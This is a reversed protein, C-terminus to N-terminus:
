LLIFVVDLFYPAITSPCPTPYGFSSVIPLSISSLHILPSRTRSFLHVLFRADDRLAILHRAESCTLNYSLSSRFHSRHTVQSELRLRHSQRGFSVDHMTVPAPPFLGNPFAESRTGDPSAVSLAIVM